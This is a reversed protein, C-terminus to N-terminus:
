IAPQYHARSRLAQEGNARSKRRHPKKPWLKKSGAANQEGYPVSAKNGNSQNTNIDLPLIAANTGSIIGRLKVREKPYIFTYAVGSQNARGTRGIRHVYSDADGPIDYNIVADINHVDIGRAAVDTAVLINVKGSRYSAM